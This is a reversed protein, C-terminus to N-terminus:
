RRRWRRLLGGGHDWGSGDDRGAMGCGYHRRSWWRYGTGYGGCGDGDVEAREQAGFMWWEPAQNGRM